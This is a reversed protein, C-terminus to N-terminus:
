SSALDAARQALCVVACRHLAPEDVRQTEIGEDLFRGNPRAGAFLSPWPPMVSTGHGADAFLRNGRLHLVDVPTLLLCEMM